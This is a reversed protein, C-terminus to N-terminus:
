IEEQLPLRRKRDATANYYANFLAPAIPFIPPEGAGKPDSIGTDVIYNEIAPIDEFQAIHYSNYLTSALQGNGFTAREYLASSLGMIIGGEMQLRIGEPNVALGPDMSCVVQQVQVNPQETDQVTLHLCEAVETGVDVGFAVGIGEHKGPNRSGWGFENLAKKLVARSREQKMNDLRFQAPDAGIAGALEDIACEIVYNNPPGSVGRWAGTDLVHDSGSRSVRFHDVKYPLTTERTGQGITHYDWATMHGNKKVGARVRTVSAHRYYKHTFQEERTWQIQVPRGVQKAAKAAEEQVSSRSKGGFAGGIDPVRVRVDEKSLNFTKALRKRVLFPAQTGTWIEVQNGNWRATATDPEIPAHQVYPTFYQVDIVEDAQELGKRVEGHEHVTRRNSAHELVHQKVESSQLSPGPWSDETQERIAERAIDTREALVVLFDDGGVIDVVGEKRRARGRDFQSLEQDPRERLVAGHLMDELNVDSAFTREGLVKEKTDVKTADTGVIQYRDETRYSPEDPIVGMPIDGQVLEGFPVGAQPDSKKVVAEERIELQSGPVELEISALNVLAGRTLAAAKRLPPYMSITSQSGWTGGDPDPQVLDTNGMILKVRDVPVGLEEAVIMAFGMRIGQGYEVKPTFAVIRSDSQVRIWANVEDTLSSKDGGTHDQGSLFSATSGMIVIALGGAAAGKLFSRRSVQWGNGTSSAKQKEEAMAREIALVVQDSDIRESRYLTNGM